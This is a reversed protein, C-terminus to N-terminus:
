GHKEYERLLAPPVSADRTVKDFEIAGDFVGSASSVIVQV